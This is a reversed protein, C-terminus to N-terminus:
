LYKCFSFIRRTKLYNFDHDNDYAEKEFCINKYAKKSDWYIILRIIFEIIYWLMFPFVLLEKQQAIHIKEHNLIENDSSCENKLIIFPYLTIGSVWKIGFTIIKLLKSNYIIKM